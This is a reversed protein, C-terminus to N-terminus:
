FFVAPLDVLAGRVLVVCGMVIWFTLNQRYVRQGLEWLSDDETTRNEKYIYLKLSLWVSPHPYIFRTAEALDNWAWKRWVPFRTQKIRSHKKWVLKRRIHQVSQWFNISNISNWTCNFATDPTLNICRRSVCSICSICRSGASGRMM